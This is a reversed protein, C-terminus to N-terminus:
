YLMKVYFCHRRRKNGKESALDNLKEHLLKNELMVTDLKRKLRRCEDNKCESDNCQIDSVSAEDTDRSGLTLSEEEDDEEEDEDDEVDSSVLIPSTPRDRKITEPTEESDTAVSDNLVIMKARAACCSPCVRQETFKVCHPCSEELCSMCKQWACRRSCYPVTSDCECSTRYYCMNGPKILTNCEMNFLDGGCFRAEREHLTRDTTSAASLLIESAESEDSLDFFSSLKKASM